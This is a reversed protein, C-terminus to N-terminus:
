PYCSKRDSGVAFTDEGDKVEHPFYGPGSICHEMRSYSAITMSWFGLLRLHLLRVYFGESFSMTIYAHEM